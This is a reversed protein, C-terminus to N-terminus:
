RRDELVADSVTPAGPRLRAPRPPVTLRQGSWSAKGAAVLARAWQVAPDDGESALAPSITAIIRNRDTVRLIEGAQVRRLHHSLEAKLQRIGVTNSRKASQSSM